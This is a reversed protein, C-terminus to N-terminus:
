SERKRNALLIVNRLVEIDSANLWDDKFDQGQAIQAIAMLARLHYNREDLTGTLVFICNVLGESHPFKIGAKSRVMMVEFIGDGEIIVHPIALGPMIVTSGQAERACLKKYFLERDYGITESVRESIRKFAQEFSCDDELDLIPCDKILGDFRDETISDREILIDRLENELHITKIAKDTIRDVIHMLAANKGVRKSLYLLFWCFSFLMVCLSIAVPVLGLTAMLLTYIIVAAIQIYPYFPSKFTPRYSLIRSERMIVVSVNVLLYLMLMLCSATKVLTELDLLILSILMFSGTTLIGVYPTQYKHSIKSFIPPLLKDRSMALPSRSAAMLGANGTTIFALMAALSVLLFGVLSTTRMAATSIPMLSSALEEAPVVAVAAAIVIFYLGSIIFWALFMGLPLTRKPEKIEEAVAAINVLGGYSVFVTATASIFLGFSLDPVFFPHFRSLDVMRFSSLIFFVLIILLGWVLYIQFGSSSKVSYINLIIFLICFGVSVGKTILLSYFDNGSLFGTMELIYKCFVAIGAVAFASKATVSFWNALGTFFGFAPGLSRAVYFYTGGAKPMATALEAQSLVSPIILVSSFLYILVVAPGVMAYIIAPLVFLGSSIMAGSALCFVDGLRLEKKLKVM